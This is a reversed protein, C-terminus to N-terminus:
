LSQQGHGLASLLTTGDQRTRGAVSSGPDVNLEPILPCSTSVAERGQNGAPQRGGPAFVGLGVHSPGSLPTLTM